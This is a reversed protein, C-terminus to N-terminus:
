TIMKRNNWMSFLGVLECDWTAKPQTQPGILEGRAVMHMQAPLKAGLVGHVVPSWWESHPTARGTIHSSSLHQHPFMTFGIPPPKQKPQTTTRNVTLKLSCAHADVCTLFGSTITVYVEAAGFSYIKLQLHYDKFGRLEWVHTHTPFCVTTQRHTYGVRMCAHKHTYNDLQLYPYDSNLRSKCM